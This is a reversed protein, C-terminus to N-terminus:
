PQTQSVHAAVVVDYSGAQVRDDTEDSELDLVSYEMKQSWNNLKLQVEEFLVDSADTFHYRSISTGLAELVQKTADGAGAGLELVKINSHNQGLAVLYQSFLPKINGWPAEQRAGDLLHCFSLVDEEGTLLSALRRGVEGLAAGRRSYAVLNDQLKERTERDQNLNSLATPHVLPVSGAEVASAMGRMWNYFKQHQPMVAEPSPKLKNLAESIFSASLLEMQEIHATDKPKLIDQHLTQFDVASVLLDTSLRASVKYCASYDASVEKNQSLASLMMGTATIQREQTANWVDMDARWKSSGRPTSWARAQFMNGPQSDISASVWIEETFTTLLESGLPSERSACIPLLIQALSEMTTPHIILPKAHGSAMEETLSPVRVEGFIDEESESIAMKTLNQMTPGFLVGFSELNRYYDLVDLAQTCREHATTWSKQSLDNWLNLAADGVDNQQTESEVRVLGSTHEVWCDRESDHSRMYFEYWPQHGDSVDNTRRMSFSIEIGEKTEPIMLAAKYSVNRVRYGCPKVPADILRSAAEMAM